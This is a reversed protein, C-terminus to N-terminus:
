LFSGGVRSLFHCNVPRGIVALSRQTCADATRRQLRQRRLAVSRRKKFLAWPQRKPWFADWILRRPSSDAQAQKDM